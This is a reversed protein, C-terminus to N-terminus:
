KVTIKFKQAEIVNTQQIILTKFNNLHQEYFNIISLTKKQYEQPNAGHWNQASFDLHPNGPWNTMRALHSNDLLGSINVPDRSPAIIESQSANLSNMDNM